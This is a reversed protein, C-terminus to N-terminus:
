DVRINADKVVKAVKAMERRIMEGFEAPSTPTLEFGLAVLKDRVEPMAIVRAWDANVKQVIASPTGAPALLGAWASYDFGPVGAEQMTPVDPMAASRRASGIALARIRGAKIHPPTNSLGAFMIPIQGSLVDNFAPGLGKYPVHVLDIGAIQKFMEMPVHQASGNGGSAYHLKGPNAKAYAVLEQVSAFPQSAHAVLVVPISAGLTIPAFDRLPAYPLKPYLAPNTALAADNTLLLTYGDPAAKAAAETGIITNAGTRNDIVLPQGWLESLKQGPVRALTDVASGASFPVILHM